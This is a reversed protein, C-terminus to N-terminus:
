RPDVPVVRLVPGFPGHVVVFRMQESPGSGSPRPGRDPPGGHFHTERPRPTRYRDTPWANIPSTRTRQAQARAFRAEAASAFWVFAAIVILMPRTPTGLLGYVGMALAVVRAVRAAIATARQADMRTSLLAKLVRGGDMPLAPLLNFLGLVLNAQVMLGLLTELPAATTPAAFPNRGLLWALGSLGFALAFNVMPGAIAVLAQARPSEPMSELAAVGGIPYLTINRTRIGFRRATLAHGFEHLLVFGFLATVLLVSILTAPLSGTDVLTGLAVWGLLLAFTLHVHVGIGFWEGVRYSWRM